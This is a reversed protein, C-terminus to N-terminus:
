SNSMSRGEQMHLESYELNAAAHWQRWLHRYYRLSGQGFGDGRLRNLRLLGTGLNLKARATYARQFGIRELITETSDSYDYESGFPYVFDECEVQLESELARKCEVADNNFEEATFSTARQHLLSHA